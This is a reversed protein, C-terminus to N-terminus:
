PCRFVFDLLVRANHLATEAGLSFRWKEAAVKAAQALVSNGSIVRVQETGGTTPSSTIELEVRGSIRAQKAFTPYTPPIYHDFRFLGANALDIRGEPADPSLARVDDKFSRPALGTDFRGSRLEALIAESAPQLQAALEPPVVDYFAFRGFARTGVTKELAWLAAIRPRKRKMRSLDVLYDFPLRIVRDVVDAFVTARQDVFKEELKETSKFIM